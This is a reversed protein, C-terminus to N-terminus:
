VFTAMILYNPRNDSPDCWNKVRVTPTAEVDEVVRGTAITPISLTVRAGNVFALIKNTYTADGRRSRKPRLLVLEQNPRIVFREPNPYHEVGEIMFDPLEEGLGLPRGRVRAHEGPYLGHRNPSLLLRFRKRENAWPLFNWSHYEVRYHHDHYATILVDIPQHSLNYVNM